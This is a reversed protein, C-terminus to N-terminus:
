LVTQDKPVLDVAVAQTAITLTLAVSVMAVTFVRFLHLQQLHHEVPQHAQQPKLEQAVVRDAALDTSTLDEAKAEVRPLSRLFYLTRAMQALTEAQAVRAVQESRSRTRREVQLLSREPAIDVQAVVAVM